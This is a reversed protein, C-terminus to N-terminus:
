AIGNEIYPWVNLLSRDYIYVDAEQRVRERFQVGGYGILLVDDMKMELDTVGDGICVMAKGQQHLAKVIEHKGGNRALPSERDFDSYSGDHDFFIDVARVNDAPIGLVQAMGQVAPRLGGSIIYVDMDSELLRQVLKDADETLHEIYQGSLWDIDSRSPRILDLRKAFVSELAVEGDMAARTLDRCTDSVGARSALEDIGEIASLTSDCDLVVTNFPAATRM